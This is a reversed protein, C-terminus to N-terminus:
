QVDVCANRMSADLRELGVPRVQEPKRKPAMVRCLVSGRFELPCSAVFACRGRVVVAVVVGVEGARGPSSQM